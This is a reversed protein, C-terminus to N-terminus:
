RCAGALLQTARNALAPGTIGYHDMLEHYSGHGVPFTDDIGVSTFRLPMVPPDATTLAQLVASALGGIQRHEEVCVIVEAAAASRRILEVDLPKVTHLHVAGAEIGAEGLLAVAAQVAFTAAGCSIFLVAGPEELVRGQGFVIEGRAHPLPETTGALRLYSLGAFTRAHQALRVAENPEGPTLIASGPIASVLLLDDVAIHTPGLPAYFLGGGSGVVCGSLQHLGFDLLLQEYCRRTGFVALMFMFPYYGESALGAALGVLGQECVGEILLREPHTAALEAMFGATPDSAVVVVQPDALALEEIARTCEPRM